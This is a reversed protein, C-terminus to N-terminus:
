LLDIELDSKDTKAIEEQITDETIRIRKEETTDISIECDFEHGLLQVVTEDELYDNLTAIVGQMFLKSILESAKLKMEVALDKITIPLRVKLSKPRITMDEEEIYKMKPKRKRWHSGEEIDRFGHRDRADFSRSAEQKKAPKVDKFEKFRVPKGKNKAEETEAEKKEFEKPKAADKQEAPKAAAAPEPKTVRAKKPLM